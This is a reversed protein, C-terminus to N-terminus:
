CCRVDRCWGVISCCRHVYGCGVNYPEMELAILRIFTNVCIVLVDVVAQVEAVAHVSTSVVVV